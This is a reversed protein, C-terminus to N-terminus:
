AVQELIARLRDAFQPPGWERTRRRGEEVLSRCLADDTWLREFARAIDDISSPDFLLAAGNV